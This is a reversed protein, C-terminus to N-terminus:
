NLDYLDKLLQDQMPSREIEEIVKNSVLVEGTTHDKFSNYLTVLPAFLLSLFSLISLIPNKNSM